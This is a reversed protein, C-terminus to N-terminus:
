GVFKVGSIPPSLMACAVSCLRSRRRMIPPVAAMCVSRLSFPPPKVVCFASMQNVDMNYPMDRSVKSVSVSTVMARSQSLTPLDRVALLSETQDGYMVGTYNDIFTM